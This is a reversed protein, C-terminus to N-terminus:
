LRLCLYRFGCWIYQLYENPVQALLMSLDFDDENIFTKWSECTGEYANDWGQFHKEIFDFYKDREDYDAYYMSQRGARILENINDDRIIKIQEEKTLRRFINRSVNPSISSKKGDIGVFDNMNRLGGSSRRHNKTPTKLPPSASPPSMNEVVMGSLLMPSDTEREPSEPQEYKNFDIKFDIRHGKFILIIDKLLKRPTSQDKGWLSFAPTQSILESAIRLSEELQDPKVTRGSLYYLAGISLLLLLSDQPCDAASYYLYILDDYSRDLKLFHNSFKIINNIVHNFKERGTSLKYLAEALSQLRMAIDTEPMLMDKFIKSEINDRPIKNLLEIHSGSKYPSIQPLTSKPTRFKSPTKKNSTPTKFPTSFTSKM